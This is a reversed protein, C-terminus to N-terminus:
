CAECEMPEGMDIEGGTKEPTMGKCMEKLSRYPRRGQMRSGYHVVALIRRVVTMFREVIHPKFVTCPEM